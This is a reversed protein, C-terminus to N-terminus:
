ANVDIIQFPIDGGVLGDITLSISHPGPSEVLITVAGAVAYIGQWGDAHHVGLRPTIEFDTPKGVPQLQADLTALSVNFAKGSEDEPYRFQLAFAVTFEAPFSKVGFVDIGGGTLNLLGGEVEIEAYRALLAFTLKM